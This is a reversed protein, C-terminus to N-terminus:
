ESAALGEQAVRVLMEDEGGDLLAAPFREGVEVLAHRAAHRVVPLLLASADELLEALV